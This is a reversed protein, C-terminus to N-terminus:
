IKISVKKKVYILWHKISTRFNDIPTAYARAQSLSYNLEIGEKGVFQIIRRIINTCHIICKEEMHNKTFHSELKYKILNVYQYLQNIYPIYNDFLVMHVNNRIWIRDVSIWIIKSQEMFAELLSLIGLLGIIANYHDDFHTANIYLPIVTFDDELIVLSIPGIAKLVHQDAIHDTTAATVCSILDPLIIRTHMDGMKKDMIVHPHSKIGIIFFYIMSLIANSRQKSSTVLLIHTYPLLLKSLCILLIINDIKTDPITIHYNYSYSKLLTDMSDIPIGDLVMDKVHQLALDGTMINNRCVFSILRPTIHPFNPGYSCSYNNANRYLEILFTRNSIIYYWRKCVRLCESLLEKLDLYKLISVLIENPLSEMQLCTNDYEADHTKARQRYSSM